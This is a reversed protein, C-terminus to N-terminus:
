NLAISWTYREYTIITVDKHDDFPEFTFDPQAFERKLYDVLAVYEDLTYNGRGVGNLDKKDFWDLPVGFLAWTISKFKHSERMREEMTACIRELIKRNTEELFKDRVDKKADRIGRLKEAFSM